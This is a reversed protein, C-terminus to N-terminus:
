QTMGLTPFRYYFLLSYDINSVEFFYYLFPSKLLWFFLLSFDIITIVNQEGLKRPWSVAFPRKPRQTLSGGAWRYVVRPPHKM